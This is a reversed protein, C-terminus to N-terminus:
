GQSLNQTALPFGFDTYYQEVNDCVNAQNVKQIISAYAASFANTNINSLNRENDYISDIMNTTLLKINTTSNIALQSDLLAEIACTKLHRMQQM